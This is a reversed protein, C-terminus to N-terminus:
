DLSFICRLLSYMYVCTFLEFRVPPRNTIMSLVSSTSMHYYTGSPLYMVVNNKRKLVMLLQPFPNIDSASLRIDQVDSQAGQKEQKEAIDTQDATEKTAHPNFAEVPSGHGHSKQM